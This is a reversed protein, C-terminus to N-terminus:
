HVEGETPTALGLQKVFQAHKRKELPKTFGDAKMKTTEVFKLGIRGTEGGSHGM